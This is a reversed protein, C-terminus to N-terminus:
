SLLNDILNELKSEVTFMYKKGDNKTYSGIIILNKKSRDVGIIPTIEVADKIMAKNNKYLSKVVNGSKDIHEVTYYLDTSLHIGEYVFVVTITRAAFDQVVKYGKKTLQIVGYINGETNVVAYDSNEKISVTTFMYPTLAKFESNLIAKKGNKEATYYSSNLITLNDLVTKKIEVNYDGNENYVYTVVNSVKEAYSYNANKVLYRFISKNLNIKSEEFRYPCNGDYVEIFGKNFILSKVREQPNTEGVTYVIDVLSHENETISKIRVYGSGLDVTDQYKLIKLINQSKLEGVVTSNTASTTVQYGSIQAIEEENVIRGKEKGELMISKTKCKFMMNTSDYTFKGWDNGDFSTIIKNSELVAYKSNDVLAVTFDDGTALINFTNSYELIKSNTVFDFLVKEDLDHLVNGNLYEFNKAQYVNEGRNNYYLYTNDSNKVWFVKEREGIESNGSSYGYATIASSIIGAVKFDVSNKPNVIEFNMVGEDNVTTIVYGFNDFEEVDNIDEYTKGAMYYHTKRGEEDNVTLKLGSVEYTEILRFAINDYSLRINEIGIYDSTYENVVNVEQDLICANYKEEKEVMTKCTVLIYNLHTTNHLDNDTLYANVTETGYVHVSYNKDSAPMHYQFVREGGNGNIKVGNLYGKEVYTMLYTTKSTHRLTKSFHVEEVTADTIKIDKADISINKLNYVQKGTDVNVIEGGKIGRTKAFLLKGDISISTLEDYDSDLLKKGKANVVNMKGNDLEAVFYKESTNELSAFGKKTTKFSSCGMFVSIALVIVTIMGLSLAIKKKM